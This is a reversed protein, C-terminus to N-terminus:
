NGAKRLLLKGHRLYQVLPRKAPCAYACSGCEMCGNVCLKKLMDVNGEKGYREVFTPLLSMPCVSVCRGCRICPANEPAYMEEKTLCLIANNQKMLPGAINYLSLGMMPGGLIIKEPEQIFNGCFKIIEQISTGIPVFLNQPWLIASGDVTIRKRVLPIGTTLYYNLISVSSINLVIANAESPLGGLPVTRGTLTWILMKEAGHPYLTPLEVVQVRKEMNREKIMNTLLTVAKPKNAEIGILCSPIGVYEMIREIGDLIHTSNEMMERYDTTIYPECEAGNIILTDVKIEKKVALKGHLPFGAGGIGVMGSQRVAQLFDNPNNITPISINPYLTDLGDNEIQIAEVSDGNALLYPSISKVKGSVTAHIPAAVFADTDAIVQGVYVIDGVKVLPTCPAGIHQQLPLVVTPPAPMRVSGGEATVKTHPVHAGGRIKSIPKHKLNTEKKGFPTKNRFM